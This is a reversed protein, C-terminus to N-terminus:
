FGIICYGPKLGYEECDRLIYKIEHYSYRGTFKEGDWVRLLVYDGVEFGRDDKRLEFKKRGRQVAEFYKPLVKLEHTKRSTPAIM